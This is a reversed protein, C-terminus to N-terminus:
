HLILTAPHLDVIIEIQIRNTEDGRTNKQEEKEVKEQTFWYKKM